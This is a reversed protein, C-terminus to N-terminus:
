NLREGEFFMGTDTQGNMRASYPQMVTLGNNKTHVKYMTDGAAVSVIFGGKQTPKISSILGTLVCGFDSQKITIKAPESM